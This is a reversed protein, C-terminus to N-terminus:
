HPECKENDIWKFTKYEISPSWLLHCLVSAVALYTMLGDSKDVNCMLRIKIGVVGHTYHLISFKRKHPIAVYIVKADM